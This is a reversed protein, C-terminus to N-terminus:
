PQADEAKEYGPHTGDILPQEDDTIYYGWNKLFLILICYNELAKRDMKWTWLYLDPLYSSYLMCMMRQTTPLGKYKKEAEDKENATMSNWNKGDANFLHMFDQKYFHPEFIDICKWLDPYIMGETANPKLSGNIIQVFTEKIRAKFSNMLKKLSDRDYRQQIEELTEEKTETNKAAILSEDVLVVYITGYEEFWFAKTDWEMPDYGYELKKREFEEIGAKTPEFRAVIKYGKVSCNYSHLSGPGKSISLDKFLERVAKAAEERERKSIEENIMFEFNSRSHAKELIHNRTAVDKIKALKDYDGIQMNFAQKEEHKKISEKDLEAIKLRRRITSESFGSKEAVSEVTEGLDLCLQFSDAEEEPTLDRRQMNEALMIQIQEARSPINTHIINCPVMEVGAAKAAALRRHGILVLYDTFKEDKPVVTLPQLVGMAKISSTLEEVDGVAKRPNDPHPFLNSTHIKMVGM